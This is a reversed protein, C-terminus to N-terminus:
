PFFVMQLIYGTLFLYTEAICVCGCVQMFFSHGPHSGFTLVKHPKQSFEAVESNQEEKQWDFILRKRGDEEKEGGKGHEETHANRDPFM